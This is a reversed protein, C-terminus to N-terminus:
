LEFNGTGHATCRVVEGRLSLVRDKPPVYIEVQVQHGVAIKQPMLLRIGGASVDQTTTVHRGETSTLVHCKVPWATPLRLYRRTNIFQYRKFFRRLM